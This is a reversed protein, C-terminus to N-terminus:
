MHLTCLLTKRRGFYQGRGVGGEGGLLHTRGGCCLRHPVSYFFKVFYNSVQMQHRPVLECQHRFFNEADRFLIKSYIDFKKKCTKLFTSSRRCNQFIEFADGGPPPKFRRGRPKSEAVKGSCLM